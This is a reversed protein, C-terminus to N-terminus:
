FLLDELYDPELGTEGCFFEEANVFDGEAIYEHMAESIQELWKDVEAASLGDRRMLTKKLSERM